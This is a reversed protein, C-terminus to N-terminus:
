MGLLISHTLLLLRRTDRVTDVHRYRVAARPIIDPRAKNYQEDKPQKTPKKTLIMKQEQTDNKTRNGYQNQNEKAM